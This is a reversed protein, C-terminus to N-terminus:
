VKMSDLPLGSMMSRNGTQEYSLDRKGIKMAKWCEQVTNQYFVSAQEMLEYFNENHPTEKRGYCLQWPNNWVNKQLNLPDDYILPYHERVFRSEIKKMIKMFRGTNNIVLAARRKSLKIDAYTSTCAYSLMRAIIDCQKKTLRFMAEDEMEFFKQKGFSKMLAYDIQRELIVHRGHCLIQNKGYGTRYYIYPHCIADMCYHGLYGALYAMAVSKTEEEKSYLVFKYMKNIYRGTQSQHMISGLNKKSIMRARPYYFFLDPGQLGLNYAKDNEKIAQKIEGAIMKKYEIKGFLYHSIYGAM